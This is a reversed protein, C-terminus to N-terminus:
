PAKHHNNCCSTAATDAGAGVRAGSATLTRTDADSEVDADTAHSRTTRTPITRRPDLSTDHAAACDATATGRGPTSHGASDADADTAADHQTPELPEAILLQHQPTSSPAAPERQARREPQVRM